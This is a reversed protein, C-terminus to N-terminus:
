FTDSDTVERWLVLIPIPEFGDSFDLARDLGIPLGNIAAAIAELAKISREIRAVDVPDEELIVAAIAGKMLVEPDSTLWFGQVKAFALEIRAEVSMEGRVDERLYSAVVSMLTDIRNSM